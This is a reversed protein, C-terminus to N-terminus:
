RVGKVDAPQVTDGAKNDWANRQYTLVAALDVDSLQNKYAAMATGPRGNMVIDMHSSVDGTAVPSGNIAPFTGPIGMGNLQHCGVCQTNYVEEGKAYLDDSTWVKDAAAEMAVNAGKKEKIWRAYEEDTVARVVIPMFGHDKGCLEACQGRYVGPQKIETWMENIFGPIADQKQGIEPVWWAHIVDSATLFFRIKKNVPVVLENDVDLLYNDVKMPDAYIARRSDAALSSIYNIGQADGDLYEYEWKWQHGTVKISIDAESTDSMFVLTKTAPIAMGVLIVFPLITWLIEMKTSEHFTAPVAGRSKRHAYMSYFMAGFVVVGIIVCVWLILMHLDYVEQSIPTVGETMNLTDMYGAFASPATVMMGVSLAAILKSIRRM